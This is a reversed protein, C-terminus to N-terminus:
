KKVYPRSEVFLSLVKESVRQMAANQCFVKLDTKEDPMKDLYDVPTMEYIEVDTTNRQQQAHSKTDSFSSKKNPDRQFDNPLQFKYSKYEQYRCRQEAQFFSAPIVSRRHQAHAGMQDDQKIDLKDYM